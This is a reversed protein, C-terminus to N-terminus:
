ENPSKIAIGDIISPDTKVKDSMAMIAELLNGMDKVTNSTAGGGAIPSSTSGGNFAATKSSMINYLNIGGGKGPVGTVSSIDIEGIQALTEITKLLLGASMDEMKSVLHELAKQRVGEVYTSTQLRKMIFISQLQRIADERQVSQVSRELDTIFREVVSVSTSESM